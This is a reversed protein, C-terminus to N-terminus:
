TVRSPRDARGLPARRRPGGRSKSGLYKAALWRQLDPDAWLAGDPDGPPTPVPAPVNLPQLVTVDGQEHLLRDWDAFSFVFEGMDGWGPGWSNVARVTQAEADVGIVEFEHGGRVSGGVKVRGHSDPHDFGEYWSVGTIVPLTALAALAANLSLAHTYGSVYGLSHCVKAVSLGDSGTDEPPYTGPEADIATAQSYVSVALPEDLAPHSLGALAEWLPSTGLAGVAANGTCSGLNGQDLVPTQRPHLVTVVQGEPAAYALSRPDHNVHRGLRKGPVVQEEIHAYM